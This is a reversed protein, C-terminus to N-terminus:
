ENFGNMFTRITKRVRKRCIHCKKFNAPDKQYCQYCCSQHGCPTFVANIPNTVCVTCMNNKPACNNSIVREINGMLCKIDCDNLGM